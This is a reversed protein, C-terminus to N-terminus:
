GHRPALEPSARRSTACSQKYDTYLQWIRHWMPGVAGSAVPAGDLRTVPLIQRTSSTLWIERAGRLEGESIAAEECELGGRRALDIVLDRTIGGLLRRSKPPTKITDDSVVMVNSAAGETLFGDALLIAEAAGARHAYNRLMVNAVLSTTKIHCNDWRIDRCTIASVPEPAAHRIAKSFIFVTPQPIEMVVHEREAVGRSIQLYVYQDGGGNREIVASITEMWRDPEMPNGIDLASLSQQLRELHERMRLPQGSFVPIVEYVADGFIFGRDFASILAQENAVFRGNLYVVCM